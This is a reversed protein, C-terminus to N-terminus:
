GNKVKREASLCALEGQMRCNWIFDTAAPCNGWDYIADDLEAELEVCALMFKDQAAAIKELAGLKEINNVM